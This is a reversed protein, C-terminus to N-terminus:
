AERKGVLLHTNECNDVNVRGVLVCYGGTNDCNNNAKQFYKQYFYLQNQCHCKRLSNKRLFKAHEEQTDLFSFDDYRYYNDADEYATIALM